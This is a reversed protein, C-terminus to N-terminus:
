INDNKSKAPLYTQVQLGLECILEDSYRRGQSYQYEPKIFM